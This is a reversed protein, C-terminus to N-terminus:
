VGTVDTEVLVGLPEADRRSLRMTPQITLGRTEDFPSQNIKLTSSLTRMVRPDHIYMLIIDSGETITHVGSDDVAFSGGLYPNEVVKSAPGFTSLMQKEIAELSTRDETATGTGDAVVYADPTMEIILTSQPGAIGKYKLAARLQQFAKAFTLKANTPSAIDLPTTIETGPTATGLPAISHKTSGMYTILDARTQLEEVQAAMRAALSYPDNNYEEFELASMSYNSYLIPTEVNDRKQSFTSDPPSVVDLEFGVGVTSKTKWDEYNKTRLQLSKEDPLSQMALSGYKITDLLIASVQTITSPRIRYDVDDHITM